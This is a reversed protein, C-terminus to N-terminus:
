KKIILINLGYVNKNVVLFYYSVVKKKKELKFFFFVNIEKKM